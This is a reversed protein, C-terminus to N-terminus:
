YVREFADLAKAAEKFEFVQAMPLHLQKKAFASLEVMMDCSGRALRGQVTAFNDAGAEV